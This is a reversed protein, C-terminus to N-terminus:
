SLRLDPFYTAYFGRDRTLLEDAHHWAHAGILFDALVHQRPSLNRGCRPCNLDQSLGCEPCTLTPPRRRTYDRWALGAAFLSEDGSPVLVMSTERLFAGLREPYLFYSSLEAFVAESIIVSGLNVAASLALRSEDQHPSDPSLLDFLVNTDVATTM